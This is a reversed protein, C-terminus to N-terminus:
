GSSEEDYLRDVKAAMIFDAEHLGDIKHTHFSVAARGYGLEIDPHHGQDEATAGVANVFALAKEFDPFSFAREIHHDDVVTWAPVQERLPQIEDHNLPDTGGRCPECTQEALSM